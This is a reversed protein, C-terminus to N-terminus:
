YGFPAEIVEVVEEAMWFVPGGRGFAGLEKVWGRHEAERILNRSGANTLGLTRQVRAVTTYPNTLLLDVLGPLSSRTKRGAVHVGRSPNGPQKGKSRTM